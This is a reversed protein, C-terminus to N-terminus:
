NREIFKEVRKKFLKRNVESIILDIYFIKDGLDPLVIVDVFQNGSKLHLQYRNHGDLLKNNYYVILPTKIADNPINKKNYRKSPNINKIDMNVIEDVNVNKEVWEVIHQIM